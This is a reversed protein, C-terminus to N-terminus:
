ASRDLTVGSEKDFFQAIQVMVEAPVQAIEKGTKPDTFVTVIMDPNREVRYSVNVSVPAPVGGNGFIKAVIPSLAGQSQQAAPESQAPFVAQAAAAPAAPQLEPVQQQGTAGSAVVQVDM